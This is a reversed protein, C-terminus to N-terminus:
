ILDAIPQSVFDIDPLGGVAKVGPPTAVDLVSVAVAFLLGASWRSIPLISRM